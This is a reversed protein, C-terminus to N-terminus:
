KRQIIGTTKKVRGPNEHCRSNRRVRKSNYRLPVKAESKAITATVFSIVAQLLSFPPLVFFNGKAAFFFCRVM